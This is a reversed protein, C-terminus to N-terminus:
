KQEASMPPIYLMYIGPEKPYPLTAGTSSTAFFKYTTTTAQQPFALTALNV